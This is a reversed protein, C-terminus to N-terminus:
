RNRNRFFVRNEISILRGMVLRKFNAGLVGALCNVFQWIVSM